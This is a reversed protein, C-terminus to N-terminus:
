NPKFAPPAPTARKYVLEFFYVFFIYHIFVEGFETINHSLSLNHAGDHSYIYYAVQFVVTMGILTGISYPHPALYRVWRNTSRRAALPYIFFLLVLITYVTNNIINRYRYREMNHFNRFDVKFKEGRWLEMYHHGYDTEELLLFISGLIVIFFSIKELLLTKRRIGQVAVFVVAILIVNQLNELLGFERHKVPAVLSQMWEIGSFYMYVMLGIVITPGLWYYYHRENLNM